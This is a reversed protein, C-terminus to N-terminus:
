PSLTALPTEGRGGSVDPIALGMLNLEAMKRIIYEPHREMLDSKAM